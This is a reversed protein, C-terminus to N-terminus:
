RIKDKKWIMVSTTKDKKDEEVIVCRRVGWDIWVNQDENNKDSPASPTKDPPCM